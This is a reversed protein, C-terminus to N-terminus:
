VRVYTLTVSVTLIVIIERQDQAPPVAPSAVAAVRVTVEREERRTLHVMTSTTGVRSVRRPLARRMARDTARRMCPGTLVMLYALHRTTVEDGTM